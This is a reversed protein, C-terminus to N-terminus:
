QCHETQLAFLVCSVLSRLLMFFRTGLPIAPLSLTYLRLVCIALVGFTVMAKKLPSWPPDLRAFAGLVRSFVLTAAVALGELESTM